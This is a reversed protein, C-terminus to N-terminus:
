ILLLWDFLLFNGYPIFKCNTKNVSIAFASVLRKVTTLKSINKLFKNVQLIQEPRFINNASYFCYSFSIDILASFFSENRYCPFHYWRQFHFWSGNTLNFISGSFLQIQIKHGSQVNSISGTSEQCKVIMTMAHACWTQFNSSITFFFLFDGYTLELRDYNGTFSM